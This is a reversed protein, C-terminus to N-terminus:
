IHYNNPVQLLLDLSKSYNPEEKTGNTGDDFDILFDCSEVPVYRSIEEKNEDNMETPIERTVELLSSKKPYHKPLLGKFESKIFELTVQRKEGFKDYTAEPLFFSSPFRHWEKGVCVRIPNQMNSFDRESPPPVVFHDYFMKHTDQIGHYNKFVVFGRLSSLIGFAVVLLAVPIFRYWYVISFIPRPLSVKLQNKDDFEYNFASKVYVFLALPIALSAFFIGINWNLFLNKLYYTFPEVGYLEPGHGSIVNYLVINVPAIVTKGYYHSDYTYLMATIVIGSLISTKIFKKFLEGRRILVMEVFIPLGLIGAFPWGVLTSLATFFIAWNWKEKLWFSIAFMSIIMSFSSPLFASGAYFVGVSFLNIMFFVKAINNGLRAAVSHYLAYEAVGHFFGMLVRFTYFLAVKSDNFFLTLLSAPLYHLYIYFWSRIAYTPSYEWTQFGRGFLMLHLQEWYNYTEDCDNMVTYFGSAIRISTLMKIIFNSSLLDTSDLSSIPYFLKGKLNDWVGEGADKTLRKHYKTVEDGFKDEADGAKPPTVDTRRRPRPM